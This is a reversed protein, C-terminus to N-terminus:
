SISIYPGSIFVPFSYLFMSIFSVLFLYDLDYFFLMPMGSAKKQRGQAPVQLPVLSEQFSAFVKSPNTLNINGGNKLDRCDANDSLGSFNYPEDYAGMSDNLDKVFLFGMTKVSAPKGSM